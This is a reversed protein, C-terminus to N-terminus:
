PRDAREEAVLALIQEENLIGLEDARLAGYRQLASLEEVERQARYARLMERFLESRTRQEEEAIRDFAEALDPPLSVTVVRSKRSAM